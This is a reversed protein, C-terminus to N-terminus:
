PQRAELIQQVLDDRRSRLDQLKAWFRAAKQPDAGADVEIAYKDLRDIESNYYALLATDRIAGAQARLQRENEAERSELKKLQISQLYINVALGALAMGSFLTNLAGFSDGVVGRTAWTVNPVIRHALTTNILWPFALWVGLIVCALGLFLLVPKVDLRKSSSCRKSYAEISL